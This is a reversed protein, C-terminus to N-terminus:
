EGGSFNNEGARRKRARGENEFTTWTHEELNLDLSQEGLIDDGAGDSFMSM